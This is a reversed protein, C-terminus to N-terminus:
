RSESPMDSERADFPIERLKAEMEALQKESYMFTKAYGKIQMVEMLGQKFELQGKFDDKWTELDRQLFNREKGKPLTNIYAQQEDVLQYAKVYDCRLVSMTWDVSYHAKREGKM